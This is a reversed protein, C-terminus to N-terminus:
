FYILWGFLLMAALMTTGGVVSLVLGVVGMSGARFMEIPLGYGTGLFIGVFVWSLAPGVNSGEPEWGMDDQGRQFACGGCLTPFIVSALFTGMMLVPWGTQDLICAFLILLFGTAMLISNGLILAVHRSIHNCNIM